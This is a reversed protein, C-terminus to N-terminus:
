STLRLFSNSPSGSDRWIGRCLAAQLGPVEGV